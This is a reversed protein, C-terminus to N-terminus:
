WDVGARPILLVTGSTLVGCVGHVSGIDSCCCGPHLRLQAITLGLKRTPHGRIGAAVVGVAGWTAWVDLRDGAMECDLSRWAETSM